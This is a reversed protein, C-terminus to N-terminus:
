KTLDKTKGEEVVKPEEGKKGSLHSKAAELGAVAETKAGDGKKWGKPRGGGPARSKPEVDELRKIAVVQQDGDMGVGCLYKRGALPQGKFTVSMLAGRVKALMNKPETGDPIPLTTGKGIDIKELNSGILKKAIGLTDKSKPTGKAKSSIADFIADVNKIRPM